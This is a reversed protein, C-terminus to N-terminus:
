IIDSKSGNIFQVLVFIFIRWDRRLYDFFLQKGIRQRTTRGNLRKLIMYPFGHRFARSYPFQGMM